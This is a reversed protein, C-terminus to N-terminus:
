GDINDSANDGFWSVSSNYALAGLGYIDSIRSIIALVNSPTKRLSKM